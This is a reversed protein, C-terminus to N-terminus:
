KLYPTELSIGQSCCAKPLSAERQSQNSHHQTLSRGKPCSLTRSVKIRNRPGAWVVHLYAGCHPLSTWSPLVRPPMKCSKSVNSRCRESGMHTGSGRTKQISKRTLLHCHQNCSFVNRVLLSVSFPANGLLWLNKCIAFRSGSSATGETEQIAATFLPCKRIIQVM